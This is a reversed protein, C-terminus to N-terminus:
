TQKIIMDKRSLLEWQRPKVVLYIQCAYILGFMLMFLSYFIFLLSAAAIQAAALRHPVSDIITSHFADIAVGM